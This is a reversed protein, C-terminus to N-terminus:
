LVQEQLLYRLPCVGMRHGHLDAVYCALATVAVPLVLEGCGFRRGLAGLTQRQM